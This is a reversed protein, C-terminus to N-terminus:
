NAAAVAETKVSPAGHKELYYAAGALRAWALECPCRVGHWWAWADMAQAIKEERTPEVHKYDFWKFPWM